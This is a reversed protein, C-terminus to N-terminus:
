DENEGFLRLQAVPERRADAKRAIVRPGSARVSNGYPDSPYIALPLELLARQASAMLPEPDETSGLWESYAPPTLVLPMRDHIHSTAPIAATTLIAFSYFSAEEERIESFVGAFALPEASPLEFHYPQKQGAQDVFERWGTAPVLCRSHRIADRYTPKRSIEESRANYTSPLKGVRRVGGPALFWFRALRAVPGNLDPMIIVQEFGPSSSPAINYSPEFPRFFDLQASFRLRIESLEM